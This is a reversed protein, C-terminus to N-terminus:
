GGCVARLRERTAADGTGTVPLSSRRQFQRLAEQLESDFGPDSLDGHYLGLNQLRAKLGRTTSVPELRGLQITLPDDPADDLTLTLEVVGAPLEQHLVGQYAFGYLREPFAFGYKDKAGDFVFSSLTYDTERPAGREDQLTLHLVRRLPTYVLFQIADSRVRLKKPEPEPVFLEDECWLVCHERAAFLESNEPHSLIAQRSVGQRQALRMLDDSPKPKMTPVPACGKATLERRTPRTREKVVIASTRALMPRLRQAGFTPHVPGSSM